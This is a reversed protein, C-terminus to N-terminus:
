VLRDGCRRFCSRSDAMTSLAIADFRISLTSTSGPRTLGHQCSAAPQRGRRPAPARSGRRTSARARLPRERGEAGWRHDEGSPVAAHLRQHAPNPDGVRGRPGLFTSAHLVLARRDHQGQDDAGAAFSRRGGWGRRRGRCRSDRRRCLRVEVLEDVDHLGTRHSRWVISQRREALDDDGGSRAFWQWNDGAM